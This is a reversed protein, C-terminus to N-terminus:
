KKGTTILKFNRYPANEIHDLERQLSGATLLEILTNADVDITKNDHILYTLGHIEKREFGQQDIQYDLNTLYDYTIIRRKERPDFGLTEAAEPAIFYRVRALNIPCVLEMFGLKRFKNNLQADQNKQM